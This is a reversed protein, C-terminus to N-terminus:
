RPPKTQNQQKPIHASQIWTSKEMINYPLGDIVQLSISWRGGMEGTCSGGTDMVRGERILGACGFSCWAWVALAM